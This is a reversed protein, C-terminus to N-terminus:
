AARRDDFLAAIDKTATGHTSWSEWIIQGVAVIPLALFMGLIKGISWGIMLVIVVALPHMELRKGFLLPANVYDQLIRWGILFIFVPVVSHGTLITVGLILVGATIPGFVFIFELLGAVAALLIASPIRLLSLVFAFAGFSVASLILLSWIYRAMAGDIEVLMSRIRKRNSPQDSERTLGRVWRDKDKLVFVGLIMVLVSWFIFAAIDTALYAIRRGLQEVWAQKRSTWRLVIEGLKRVPGAQKALEAPIRGGKIEAWYAPGKSNLSSIEDGTKAGLLLVFGTVVAALAVYALGIAGMRSHWVRTEFFKVIPGLVYALFLSFVIAVLAPYAFYILMVAIGYLTATVLVRLTTRHVFQM